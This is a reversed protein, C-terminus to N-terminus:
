IILEAINKPLAEPFICELEEFEISNQNKNFLFGRLCEINIDNEILVISNKYKSLIANVPDDIYKAFHIIPKLASIYEFIKSPFQGIDNNGISLLFDGNMIASHAIDSSVSGHSFVQGPFRTSFVSLDSIDAHTYFHMNIDKNEMLIESFVAFVYKPNRVDKNLSGTFIINIKQNNYRVLDTYKIPKLLPHEILCPTGKFSYGNQVLDDKLSDIYMIIDAHSFINAEIKKHKKKKLKANWKTRHLSSSSSFRDFMIFILKAPHFNSKILPKSYKFRQGAVLTEFPFCFCVITDIHRKKELEEVKDNYAKVLGWNVNVNQFIARLYGFSRIMNFLINYIIKKIGSSIKHQEKYRFYNNRSHTSIRYVDCCEFNVHETDNSSTMLSIISINAKLRLEDVINRACTGVASFNPYYNGVLIVIHKM